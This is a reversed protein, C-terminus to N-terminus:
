FRMRGNQERRILIADASAEVCAEARKLAEEQGMDATLAEMRAVVLM